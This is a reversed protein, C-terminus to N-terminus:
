ESPLPGTYRLLPVRAWHSTIAQFMCRPAKAVAGPWSLRCRELADMFVEVAAPIGTRSAFKELCGRDLHPFRKEKGLSLALGPERSRGWGFDSFAISAVMDYCPSLWPRHDQGWQLSWNKLHADDNGSAVVFALRALFDQLTGESCM